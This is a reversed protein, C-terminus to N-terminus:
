PRMRVIKVETVSPAQTDPLFQDVFTGWYQLLRPSRIMFAAVGVVDAELVSRLSWMPRHATWIRRPMKKAVVRKMFSICGISTRATLKPQGPDTGPANTRKM